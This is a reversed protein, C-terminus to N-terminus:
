AKAYVGRALSKIQGKKALKYLANSIQRSKFGTKERIKAIDAGKRSRKIVDFVTALVSAGKDDDKEEEDMVMPEEVEEIVAEAKVKPTATKTRTRAGGRGKATPVPEKAPAKKKTEEEEPAAEEAPATQAGEIYKAVSEVQGALVALSESILQLQKQLEKM